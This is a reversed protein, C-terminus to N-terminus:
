HLLTLVQKVASVIIHWFAPALSFMQIAGVILAIIVFVFAAWALIKIAVKQVKTPQARRRSKPLKYTM